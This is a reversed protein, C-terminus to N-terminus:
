LFTQRCWKFGCKNASLAWVFIEDVYCAKMICIYWL